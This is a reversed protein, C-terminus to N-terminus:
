SALLLEKPAANPAGQPAIPAAISAGGQRQGRLNSRLFAEVADSPMPRGLLYGQLETCQNLRLMALQQQTEVGEGVVALGLNHCMGLIAELIVRVGQDTSQGQVFSKDIKIKDFSFRRLYSLSSYGTGFDDLAIHIGMAKLAHLTGLVTQNNDAMVSETVEIELLRAPLGTRQLIAAIDDQLRGDRLQMPSVNVAIRCQPQWAAAATCAEEIVWRGLRNILGCDEAIRIFTEPSVYGRGPHKWRALAEFGALALTDGAFMPQFHVELDGNELARRLGSELLRHENVTHTMQVDFCRVTGRGATKAAYLAIDAYKFLADGDQADKPYFAVGISAGVRLRHDGVQAPEALRQLVRQALPMAAEPDRLGPLLLVFEDGGMRAVFDVDRVLGQLRHAVEVLLEDGVDHGLTDNVGKFGDLDIMMFATLLQPGSNSDLFEPIRQRMQVRNAMGTLTDHHALYRVRADALRQETVDSYTHVFGGDALAHTRVEMVRGDENTTEFRTDQAPQAISRGADFPGAYAASDSEALGAARVAANQRAVDPPADPVGLLELARPNVVPVNGHGDVMLIGQSITELTITLARRSAISRRKQQLWLLGIGSIALTAAIGSIIARRRLSVYQHFVTGTDLGVMVILPYDQLHRFSAIQETNSRKSQFRVAGSNNTLLSGLKGTETVKHGILDPMLPGRALITGDALLLSVFGKGLDLTQYFSSLEACGLSFVTVGAFEGTPGLLKRTFQITDEGSVRGRVPPGIFLDDHTPDIQARFHPRDAISVGAPIPLTDAFVHGTSDAMGIAATMSDPLTQTRAWENFDFRSGEASHFARASLLIQDIQGITRRTSEEFARALNSTTQEAATEASRYEHDLVIGISVWLLTLFCGIAALEPLLSESSFRLRSGGFLTRLKRTLLAIAACRAYM